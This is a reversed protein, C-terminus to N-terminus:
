DITAATIFLTDIDAATLGLVQQIGERRRWAPWMRRPSHLRYGM